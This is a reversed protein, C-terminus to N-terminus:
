SDAALVVERDAQLAPSAYRLAYGDRTVAGVVGEMDASIYVKLGSQAKVQLPVLTIAILAFTTVLSCAYEMRNNKIM